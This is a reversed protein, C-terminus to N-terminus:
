LVGEIEAPENEYHDEYKCKSCQFYDVWIKLGNRNLPHSGTYTLNEGCKPCPDKLTEM